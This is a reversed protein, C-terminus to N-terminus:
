AARPTFCPQMVLLRHTTAHAILFCKLISIARWPVTLWRSPRRFGPDALVAIVARQKLM